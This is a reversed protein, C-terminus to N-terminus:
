GSQKHRFKDLTVVNNDKKAKAQPPHKKPKQSDTIKASDDLDDLKEPQQPQLQLGFNAAPDSFSLLAAFPVYLRQVKGNFSLSVSFGQEDVQLDWFQHQLVIPMEKPYEAKIQRPLVVGQHQSSFNIYFYHDGPLGEEKVKQLLSRIASRMGDQLLQTYDITLTPASHM